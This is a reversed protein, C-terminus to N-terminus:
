GQGQQYALTMCPDCSMQQKTSGQTTTERQARFSPGGKLVEDRGAPQEQM